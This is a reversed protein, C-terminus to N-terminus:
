FLTSQPETIKQSGMIADLIEVMARTDQCCYARLDTAIQNAFETGLGDLMKEYRIAALGGDQIALQKYSLDPVWAPLVKKISYSGRYETRYTYGKILDFLDTERESLLAALEIGGSEPVTALDKIRAKEYSSYTFITGASQIAALLSQGFAVRPDSDEEHLFEEHFLEAAAHERTHCSWQFPFVQYPRGDRFRPIAPNTAEFDIFAWPYPLSEVKEVFEPEVSITQSLHALWVKHQAVGTPTSLDFETEPLDLISEFGKARLKDVQGSRIMPLFTLENAGVVPHCHSMFGCDDCFKNLPVTQAQPACIIGYLREMEAEVKECNSEVFKTIETLRLLGHPTVESELRFESNVHGVSFKTVQLGCLRLVIAQFTVDDIVQPKKVKGDPKLVGTGSKIEILHWSGDHLQELVDCQAFFKETSFAAEFIIDAGSELVQATIDVANVGIERVLHGTPWLQRAMEGLVKGTEIRALIAEDLPAALKRNHTALHIRRPCNSGDRFLSKTLLPLSM